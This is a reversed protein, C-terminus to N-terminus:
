ETAPIGSPLKEQKAELIQNLNDLLKRKDKSDLHHWNDLVVQFDKDSPALRPIGCIDYAEPGLRTAIPILNELSPLSLGNILRTLTNPSIGLWSSYEAQSAPRHLVDNIYRMHGEALFKAMQKKQENQNM